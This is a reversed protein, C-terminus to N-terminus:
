YLLRRVVDLGGKRIPKLGGNIRAGTFAMRTGVVWVRGDLRPRSTARMAGRVKDPERRVSYYLFGAAKVVDHGVHGDGDVRGQRPGGGDGLGGSSAVGSRATLAYRAIAWGRDHAM